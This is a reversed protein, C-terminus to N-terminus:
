LSKTNTVKVKSKLVIEEICIGLLGTNIFLPFTIMWGTMSAKNCFAAQGRAEILPHPLTRKSRIQRYHSSYPNHSSGSMM